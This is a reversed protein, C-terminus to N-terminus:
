GDMKESGARRNGLVRMGKGVVFGAFAVPVIVLLAFPLMFLAAVATGPAFLVGVGTWGLVAVIIGGLFSALYAQRCWGAYVCVLCSAIPSMSSHVIPGLAYALFAVAGHVFSNDLHRPYPYRKKMLYTLLECACREFAWHILTTASWALLYKGRRFVSGHVAFRGGCPWDLNSWPGQGPLRFRCHSAGSTCWGFSRM